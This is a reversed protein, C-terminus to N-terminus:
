VHEALRIMTNKEEVDFGEEKSPYAEETGIKDAFDMAVDPRYSPEVQRVFHFQEIKTKKAEYEEENLYMVVYKMKRSVHHVFGFRRLNKLQRLSYVWVILGRRKQIQFPEKDEHM